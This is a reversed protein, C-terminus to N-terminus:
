VKLHCRYALPMPFATETNSKPSSFFSLSGLFYGTPHRTWPHETGAPPSIALQNGRGKLLLLAEVGGLFSFQTFCSPLLPLRASFPLALPGPSGARVLLSAPLSGWQGLHRAGPSTSGPVAHRYKGARPLCHFSDPLLPGVSPLSPCPPDCGIPQGGM